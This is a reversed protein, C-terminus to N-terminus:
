KELFVEQAGSWIVGGLEMNRHGRSVVRAACEVTHHPSVDTGEPSHAGQPSERSM